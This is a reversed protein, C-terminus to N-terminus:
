RAAPETERRGIVKLVAGAARMGPSPGPGALRRLGEAMAAQQASRAGSDRILHALAAALADPTCDGLLREPIAERGLIINILTVYKLRVLLRALWGTVPNMRYAVVMPTGERALELTVTGSAALAVDSAAMAGFRAEGQTVIVPVPWGAVGAAVRGAMPAATAAVVVLGPFEKALRAVTERYVPLLRTVEDRRSGPLLCLVAAGDPIRYRARFAKGGGRAPGAAPHGVFTCSLGHVEFYPPEFPLLCLLHDLYRPLKRARGKRWAWVQPAVYHVVPIRPGGRRAIKKLRAAVRFCFGPADITVVADPQSRVITDVTQAIRRLLRPIRPVVEALGMVSLESMSFLSTMGQASMESGGIGSFRIHGGTREKLASMLAAGLADGSPEGAILFIDPATEPASAASM